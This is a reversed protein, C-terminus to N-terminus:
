LIVQPIFVRVADIVDDAAAELATLSGRDREEVLRDVADHTPTVTWDAGAGGPVVSNNLDPM